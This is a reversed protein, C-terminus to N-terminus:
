KAPEDKQKNVQAQLEAVKSVAEDERKKALLKSHLGFVMVVLLIVFVLACVWLTIRLKIDLKLMVIGVVDTLLLSFFAQWGLNKLKM